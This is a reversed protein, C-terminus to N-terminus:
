ELTIVRGTGAPLYDGGWEQRFLHKGTEGTRHAPAVKEVGLERLRAIQELIEERTLREMHIGGLLLRVPKEGLQARAAEVLKVVGVHSSGVLVVLGTTTDLVLAQEPPSGDVQGTTYVGPAIEVPGTVRVPKLGAATALEFAEAPFSDLFFVKMKRNRMALRYIGERHDSHLHSIVAYEIEEPTLGATELNRLFLQSDAGADLLITSGRFRVAASFGWDAPM